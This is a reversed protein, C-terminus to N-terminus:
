DFSQPCVGLGGPDAEGLKPDFGAKLTFHFLKGKVTKGAFELCVKM